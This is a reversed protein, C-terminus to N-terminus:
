EGVASHEAEVRYLVMRNQEDAAILLLADQYGIIGKKVPWDWHGISRELSYPLSYHELVLAEETEELTQGNCRNVTLGEPREEVLWFHTGLPDSNEHNTVVHAHVVEEDLWRVITFQEKGALPEWRWLRWRRQIRDVGIVTDGVLCLEVQEVIEEKCEQVVQGHQSLCLLEGGRLPRAQEEPLGIAEKKILGVAVITTQQQEQQAPKWHSGSIITAGAVVDNWFESYPYEHAPIRMHLQHKWSPETFPLKGGAVWFRWYPRGKVVKKFGLRPIEVVRNENNNWEANFLLIHWMSGQVRLTARLATGIYESKEEMGPVMYSVNVSSEGSDDIDPKIYAVSVDRVTMTAFLVSSMRTMEDFAEDVIIASADSLPSSWQVPCLLISGASQETPFGGWTIIWQGESDGTWLQIHEAGIGQWRYSARHKTEGTECDIFVLEVIPQSRMKRYTEKVWALGLLGKPADRFAWASEFIWDEWSSLLHVLVRRQM